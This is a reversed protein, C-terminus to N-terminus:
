LALADGEAKGINKTKLKQLPPMVTADSGQATNIKNLLSSIACKRIFLYAPSAKTKTHM